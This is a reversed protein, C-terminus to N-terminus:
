LEELDPTVDHWNSDNLNLKQLIRGRNTLVVIGGYYYSGLTESSGSYAMIKIIKEGEMM